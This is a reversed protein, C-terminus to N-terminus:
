FVQLQLARLELAIRENPQKCLMAAETCTKFLRKLKDAQLPEDYIFTNPLQKPLKELSDAIQYAFRAAREKDLAPLHKRWPPPERANIGSTLVQVYNDHM